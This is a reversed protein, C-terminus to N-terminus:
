RGGGPGPERKLMWELVLLAAGGAIWGGVHTAQYIGYVVAALGAVVLLLRLAVRLVAGASQGSQRLARGAAGALVGLLSQRGTM